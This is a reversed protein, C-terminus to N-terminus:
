SMMQYPPPGVVSGTHGTGEVSPLAVARETSDSDGCKAKSGSPAGSDTMTLAYPQYGTLTDISVEGYLVLTEKTMGKGGLPGFTLPSLFESPAALVQIEMVALPGTSEPSLVEAFKAVM